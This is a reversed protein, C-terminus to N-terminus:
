HEELSREHPENLSRGEVSMVSAGVEQDFRLGVMSGLIGVSSHPGDRGNRVVGVARQAGAQPNTAGRLWGYPEGPKRHGGFCDGKGSVGVRRLKERTSLRFCTV